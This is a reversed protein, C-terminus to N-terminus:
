PSSMARSFSAWRTFIDVWALHQCRAASRLGPPPPCWARGTHGGSRGLGMQRGQVTPALRARRLGGPLVQRSWPSHQPTLHSSSPGRLALM